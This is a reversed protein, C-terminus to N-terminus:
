PLGDPPDITILRAELDISRVFEDVLPLQRERGGGGPDIVLRDQPGTEIRVVEGWADGGSTVVQCGVLDALLIEGDVLDLQARPVAVPAGRLEAAVDRDSIEALRLLIADKTSRAGVVEHRAGDIWVADADLLTTSDPQHPVVRLEGRVGHPRTVVGVEVLDDSL